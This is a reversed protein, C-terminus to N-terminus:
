IGERRQRKSGHRHRHGEEEEEEGYYPPVSTLPGHSGPVPGSPTRLLPLIPYPHQEPFATPSVHTSQHIHGGMNTVPPAQPMDPVSQWHNHVDNQPQYCPSMTTSGQTVSSSMSGPPFSGGPYATQCYGNPDSDPTASMVSNVHHSPPIGTFQYMSTLPPHSLSAGAAGQMPSYSNPASSLQQQRAQAVNQLAAQLIKANEEKVVDWDRHMARIEEEIKPEPIYWKGENHAQVVDRVMRKRDMLQTGKLTKGQAPLGKAFQMQGVVNRDKLRKIWNTLVETAAKRESNTIKSALATRMLGAINILSSWGEPCVESPLNLCLIRDDPLFQQPIRQPPPVWLHALSPAVKAVSQLQHTPAANHRAAVTLINKNRTKVEDWDHYLGRIEDEIVPDPTYWRGQNHAKVTHWIMEKRGELATGELRKISKTSALGLPLEMGGLVGDKKLKNTWATLTAITSKKAGDKQKVVATRMLGLINFVSKLGEPYVELDKNPILLDLVRNSGPLFVKPM